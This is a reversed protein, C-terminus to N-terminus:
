DPYRFSEEPYGFSKDSVSKFFELFKKADLFNRFIERAIPFNGFFREPFRDFLNNYYHARPAVGSLLLFTRVKSDYKCKFSKGSLRSLLFLSLPRNTLTLIGDVIKKRIVM